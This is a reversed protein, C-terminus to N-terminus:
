PKLGVFLRADPDVLPDTEQNAAARALVIGASYSRLARALVGFGKPACPERLDSSIRKLNISIARLGRLAGVTWTFYEESKLGSVFGRSVGVFRDDIDVIVGGLLCGRLHAARGRAGCKVALLQPGFDDSGYDSRCMVMDTLTDMCETAGQLDLSQPVVPPVPLSEGAFPSMSAGSRKAADFGLRMLRELVDLTKVGGWEDLGKRMAAVLSNSSLLNDASVLARGTAAQIECRGEEGLALAALGWMSEMPPRLLSLLDPDRALHAAISLKSGAEQQAARTIPLFVACQDGDFDANMLMCAMPHLRIARDPVRVPHFALLGTPSMTPARNLILWSGAMTEDLKRAAQKTRDRVAQQDALERVVQPGFFAWAMEEPLGVQDVRLDVGPAIVAKGSFAVQGGIPIHGRVFPDGVDPATQDSPAPRYAHLPPYAHRPVFLGRFYERITHGLHNRARSVLMEPAHGTLLRGMQENAEVVHQFAPVEPREGVESLEHGPLWPHPVSEHLKLKKGSPEALIFDVREGDFDMRVGAAALREQLFLFPVSPPPAAEAEDKELQASLERIGQRYCCATNLAEIINEFAGIDRLAKYEPEGRIQGPTAGTSVHMKHRALHSTLGWYVWGVASPRDLESGGKGMRLREMGSEPLGAGALRSRVELDSPAGFPPVVVPRGEARAVRGLVAERLQGLNMRTHLGLFSFVLDVPTGDQLHPMDEDPLIQSVVGKSGHRNSLKDGAEVSGDFFLKRACSESIVIGDEVTGPGWSVFATLLNRGCWFEPVDPENGSRVMAPEAEDIPLWQRMMNAGMLARNVDDHELLPIMSVTASLRSEASDDEVMIKGERIRAGRAIFRKRGIEPGEPTMIPCVRGRQGKVVVKQRGPPINILVLRCAECRALWNTDDLSHVTEILAGPPSNDPVLFERIWGDLPLWSELLEEDWVLGSPAEGLRPEIFQALQEGVCAVEAQDLEECSALPAVLIKAGEVEFVGSEDPRPVGDIRRQAAGSTTGVTLDIRYSCKGAHEAKYAALPLRAAILEPLRQNIFLEYSERHWPAAYTQEAM